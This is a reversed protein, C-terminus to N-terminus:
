SVRFAQRPETMSALWKHYAEAIDELEDDVIPELVKLKQVEGGVTHTVEKEALVLSGDPNRKYTTKGRKDHGVSDAIAMFIPYDRDPEGPAKRRLLVMSTQTDNGPMFLNRHM